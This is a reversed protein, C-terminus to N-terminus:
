RRRKGRRKGRSVSSSSSSSRTKRTKGGKTTQKTRKSPSSSSSSSSSAVAVANRTSEKAEPAGSITVRIMKIPILPRDESTPVKSMKTVVDMGRTIMGFVPHQSPGPSFWDLSTNNGVNLFIQSGGSNPQGVNAMSLTGPGNSDRSVHEDRITGGPGRCMLSGNRLNTFSIEPASGQGAKPSDPDKSLPCGFQCVFGDIVRHFHLGDYFGTRCLAVFNSATIPVRDSYIEAEFIGESTEFLARPNPQTAGPLPVLFVPAVM